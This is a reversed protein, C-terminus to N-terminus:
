SQSSLSNSLFATYFGTTLFQSAGQAGCSLVCLCVYMYSLHFVTKTYFQYKRINGGYSQRSTKSLTTLIKCGVTQCLCQCWHKHWCRQSNMTGHKAKSQYYQSTTLGLSFFGGWWKFTPIYGVFSRYVELSRGSCLKWTAHSRYYNKRTKIWIPEAKNVQKLKATGFCVSFVM